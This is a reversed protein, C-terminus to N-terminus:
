TPDSSHRRSREQAIALVPVVLPLPLLLSGRRYKRMARRRDDGVEDAIEGRASGARAIAFAYLMLPVYNIALSILYAALAAQFLTQGRVAVFVGLAGIGFAGLVFEVIIFTKGLFAIDIAALKRIDIM